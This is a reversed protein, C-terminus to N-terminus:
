RVAASAAPERQERELEPRGALDIGSNGLIKRLELDTGDYKLSCNHESLDFTRTRTKKGDHRDITAQVAASIVRAQSLRYRGSEDAERAFVRDLASFLARPDRSPDSEVSLKTANEGLILFGLRKVRVDAIESDPDRVFSVLPSKLPELAYAPREIKPLQDIGLVTLAFIRRLEDVTQRGGEFYIDLCGAIEDYVFVVEFAPRMHQRKLGTNSWVLPSASYDEPYAFFHHIPRRDYHEIKCAAGRGEEVLFYQSIARELEALKPIPDIDPAGTVPLRRKWYRGPLNDRAAFLSAADFITRANLYTLLAKDLHGRQPRLMAALNIGQFNAEDIIRRIGSATALTHIERFESEFRSRPDDGLRAIADIVAEARQKKPSQAPLELPLGARQFYETLLDDSAGRVFATLSFHSIM